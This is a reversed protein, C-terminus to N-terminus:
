AIQLYLVILSLYLFCKLLMVTNKLVTIMVFNIPFDWFNQTSALDGSQCLSSAQISAKITQVWTTICGLHWALIKSIQINKKACKNM